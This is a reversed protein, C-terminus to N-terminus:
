KSMNVVEGTLAKSMDVWDDQDKVAVPWDPDYVVKKIAEVSPLTYEIFCDFDAFDWSLRLKSMEEKLAGNLSVPTVFLSYGLMGHRKFIPMAIPLHEEVMWKIFATYKLPQAGNQAPAETM